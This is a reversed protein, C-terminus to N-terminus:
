NHYLHLRFLHWNFRPEQEFWAEETPTAPVLAIVMQMLGNSNQSSRVVRHHNDEKNYDYWEWGLGLATRLTDAIVM